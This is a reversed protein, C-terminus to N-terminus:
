AIGFGGGGGGAAGCEFAVAEVLARPFAWVELRGLGVLVLEDEDDDVELDARRPVCSVIM